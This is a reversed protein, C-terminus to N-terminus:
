HWGVIAVGLCGLLLFIQVGFLMWYRIPATDRHVVARPTWDLLIVLWDGRYVAIKRESLANRLDRYLYVCLCIAVIRAVVEYMFSQM